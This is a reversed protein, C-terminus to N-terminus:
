PHLLFDILCAFRQCFCLRNWFGPPLFIKLADAIGSVLRPTGNRPFLSLKLQSCPIVFLSQDMQLFCERPIGFIAFGPQGQRVGQTTLSFQFLCLFLELNDFLCLLRHFAQILTEILQM